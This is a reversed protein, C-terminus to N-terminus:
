CLILLSCVLYCILYCIYRIYITCVYNYLHSKRIYLYHKSWMVYLNNFCLCEPNLFFVFINSNTIIRYQHLYFRDIFERRCYYLKHNLLIYNRVPMTRCDFSFTIYEVNKDNPLLPDSTTFVKWGKGVNM